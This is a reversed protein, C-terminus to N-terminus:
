PKYAPLFHKNQIRADFDKMDNIKGSFQLDNTKCEQRINNLIKVAKKNKDATLWLPPTCLGM